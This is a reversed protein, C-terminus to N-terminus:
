GVLVSTMNEWQLYQLCLQRIRENSVQNVTQFYAEYYSYDLGSYHITKFKDALAFPTDLSSVLTGLMYNKVTELESNPLLETQLKTIEKKIEDLTQERFQKKVDTSVVWISDHVLCRIGSRIGYTYGKDERINSMLRSGFYGGLIENVVLMELYDPHKRNIFPMGLRISSQLSDEKDLVYHSSSYATKKVNKPEVKAVDHQGLAQNISELHNDSIMGSLIIEFYRSMYKGHFQSLQDQHIGDIQEVELVRGYPHDEGFVLKTFQRAAVFSNKQLDVLLSQKKRHKLKQLEVDLFSPQWVMEQVLPLIQDLHKTLLHITLTNHDFGCNVEVFAGMAEFRTAIEQASYSNTGETLMKGTFYSLGPTDEFWKGAEFVLEFRMVPQQGANVYFLPIGNDLKQCVAEPISVPEIKQVAPAITRDLM